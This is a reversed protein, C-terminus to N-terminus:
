NKEAFDLAKQLQDIADDVVKVAKARHGGFIKAGEELEKRADKLERIAARIRPYREAALARGPRALLAALGSAALVHLVQRRSSSQREM